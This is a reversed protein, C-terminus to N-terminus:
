TVVVDAASHHKLQGDRRDAEGVVMYERTTEAHWGCRGDHQCVAVTLYVPDVGLSEAAVDQARPQIVARRRVGVLVGLEEITLYLTYHVPSV